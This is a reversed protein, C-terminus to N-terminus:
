RKAELAKRLKETDFKLYQPLYHGIAFGIAIGTILEIM